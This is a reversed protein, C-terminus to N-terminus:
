ANYAAAAAPTATCTGIVHHLACAHQYDLVASINRLNVCKISKLTSYFAECFTRITDALAMGAYITWNVITHYAAAPM